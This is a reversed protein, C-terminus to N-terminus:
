CEGLCSMGPSVLHVMTCNPACLSHTGGACGSDECFTVIGLYYLLSWTVDKSWEKQAQMFETFSLETLIHANVKLHLMDILHHVTVPGNEGVLSLV